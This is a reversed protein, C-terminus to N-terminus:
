KPIGPTASPLDKRARGKLTSEHSGPVIPPMPPAISVTNNAVESFTGTLRVSQAIVLEVWGSVYPRRRVLAISEAHDLQEPLRQPHHALKCVRAPNCLCWSRGVYFKALAARRAATYTGEAIGLTVERVRRTLRASSSSDFPTRRM